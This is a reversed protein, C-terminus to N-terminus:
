ALIDILTYFVIVNPLFLITKQDLKKLFALPLAKVFITFIYSFLNKIYISINFYFDM